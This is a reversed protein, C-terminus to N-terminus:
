FFAYSYTVFCKGTPFVEAHDKILKTYRSADNPKGLKKCTVPNQGIACNNTQAVRVVAHVYPNVARLEFFDSKVEWGPKSVDVPISKNSNM